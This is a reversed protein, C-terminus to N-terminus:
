RVTINIPNLPRVKGDPGIAKINEIFFRQGVRMNRFLALQESTFKDNKSENSGTIGSADTSVVSFETVEFDVEFLFNEAEAEVTQLRSLQGITLNAQGARSGTIKAVPTPLDEIRFDSRTMLNSAGNEESYVSITALDGTSGPKVIYQGPGTRKILHPSTIRADVSSEPVGGASIAVPNPIGRYFVNMATASVTANAKAVEYTEDFRESYVVGEHELTITGGWQRIGLTNSTSTFIGKGQEVELMTGNDLAVEPMKTSDYAALFVKARYEQGPFVLSKDPIVVAELTNVPISGADVQGLLYNLMEAETNRVDAQMKSLLTIVAALPLDEFYGSQWTM